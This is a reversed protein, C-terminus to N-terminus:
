WTWFSKIGTILVGGGMQRKVINGLSIESLRDSLKKRWKAVHWFIIEEPQESKSGVNKLSNTDIFGKPCIYTIM